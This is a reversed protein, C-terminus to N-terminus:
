VLLTCVAFGWAGLLGVWMVTGLVLGGLHGPSSVHAGFSFGRIGTQAVSWMVREAAGYESLPLLTYVLGARLANDWMTLALYDWVGSDSFVAGFSLQSALGGGSVFRIEVRSWRLWRQWTGMYNCFALRGGIGVVGTM